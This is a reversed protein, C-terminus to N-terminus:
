RVLASVLESAVGDLAQERTAYFAGKPFAEMPYPLPSSTLITEARTWVVSEPEICRVYTSDANPNLANPNYPTLGIGSFAQDCSIPAAAFVHSSFLLGISAMLSKLLFGFKFGRM